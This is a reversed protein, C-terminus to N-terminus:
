KLSNIIVRVEEESKGLKYGLLEVMEKEKGESFRLDDDSIAPYELKLKEKRENWFGVITEKM